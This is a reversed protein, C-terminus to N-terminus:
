ENMKCVTISIRHALCKSVNLSYLFLFMGDAESYGWDLSSYGSRVDLDMEGDPM